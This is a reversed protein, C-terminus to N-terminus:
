VDYLSCGYGSGPDKGLLPDTLIGLAAAMFIAQLRVNLCHLLTFITNRCM